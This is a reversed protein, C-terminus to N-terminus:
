VRINAIEKGCTVDASMKIEALYRQINTVDQIDVRGNGDTDGIILQLRSMLKEENLHRQIMTVDKISLGTNVKTKDMNVDGCIIQNNNQACYDTKKYIGWGDASYINENDKAILEEHEYPDPTEATDLGTNFIYYRYQESKPYEGSEDEVMPVYAVYVNNNVREMKIGPWNKVGLYKQSDKYAFLYTDGLVPKCDSNYTFLENSRRFYVPRMKPTHNGDNFNITIDMNESSSPVTVSIHAYERDGTRDSYDLTKFITDSLAYKSVDSGTYRCLDIKSLGYSSLMESSFINSRLNVRSGIFSYHEDWLTNDNEIFVPMIAPRHYTDNVVMYQLYTKGGGKYATGDLVSEDIHWIVIGGNSNADIYKPDYRMGIDYGTFQRNEILYYEKPNGPVNVRLITENQTEINNYDYAKVTETTISGNEPPDVVKCTAWGLRIKAWPDLTYPTRLSNDVTLDKNVYKGYPRGMPSLSDVRYSAWEATDEVTRGSNNPYPYYDPIGIYHLAEHAFSGYANMVDEYHQTGDASDASKRLRNEASAIYYKIGVGELVPANNDLFNNFHSESMKTTEKPDLTNISVARSGYDYGAFLIITLMENTDMLKNPSDEGPEIYRNHKAIEGEQIYPYAKKYAEAIAEREINDADDKAVDWHKRDLNVHIVGDGPVDNEKDESNVTEPFGYNEKIPDLVFKGHSQTRFYEQLSDGNEFVGNDNLSGGVYNGEDDKNGFIAKSWNYDTHYAIDELGAVIVMTPLHQRGDAENYYGPPCVVSAEPQTRPDTITVTEVAEVKLTDEVAGAGIVSPLATIVIAGTLVASLLRKISKKMTLEDKGFELLLM